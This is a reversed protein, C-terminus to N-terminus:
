PAPARSPGSGAPLLTMLLAAALYLAVQWPLVAAFADGVQGGASRTFFLAGLAAVGVAGAVQNVTSLVGGAAGAVRGPVAALVVGVLPPAALGLGLGGLLLPGGVQWWTPRDAQDVVWWLAAHSAAIVLSGVVLLRRGHRAAFRVGLGSTVLSGLAYPLTVLGTALASRGTGEQLYVSLLLFFSAIGGFFAASAALGGTFARNSLLHPDLVPQGGRAVLRREVRLFAALGAVGALVLAWGWLPWGWPRGQVVPLLVLVLSGALLAAGALDLRAAAPQRSEPLVRRALVLAVLGIPVNVWFVTRWGLGFLDATVLLGGLLPGAISALGQVGGYAGLAAGQQRPDLSSRIIGFVQPVMTGAALGQLVRTAILVGATPALACAASAVVFVALGVLFARRRGYADGIRGGTVLAAGLALAYAAVVWQVQAPSAGLSAQISPAAVAVITVDVLDMFSAVLIVAIVTPTSTPLSGTAAPSSTTM